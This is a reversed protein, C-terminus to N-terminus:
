ENNNDDVAANSTEIWQSMKVRWDCSDHDIERAEEALARQEELQQSLIDALLKNGDAYAFNVDQKTVAANHQLLLTAIDTQWATLFTLAWMVGIAFLLCTAFSCFFFFLSSLLLLSIPFSYNHTM